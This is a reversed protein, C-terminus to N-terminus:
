VASLIAGAMGSSVLVNEVKRKTVQNVSSRFLV